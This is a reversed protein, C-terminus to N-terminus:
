AILESKQASTQPPLAKAEIVEVLSVIDYRAKRTGMEIFSSRTLLGNSRLATLLSM